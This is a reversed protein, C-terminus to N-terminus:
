YKVNIHGQPCSLRRNQHQLPRGCTPCRIKELYDQLWIDRVQDVTETQIRNLQSNLQPTSAFQRLTDYNIHDYSPQNYPNYYRTKSKGARITSKIRSGNKGILLVAILVGTILGGLHAFHATSDMNDQFAFFTELAAFLGVAYIARIPRVIAIFGLPIPMVITDNTYSYAIAGMVAFIAGSAGVLPIGQHTPDNLYILSHILVAGIGGLIYVIFYNKWGIRQELALGIFFLTIMNGLLHLFGSHLFM